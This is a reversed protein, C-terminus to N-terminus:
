RKVPIESVLISNPTPNPDFKTGSPPDMAGHVINEGSAPARLGFITLASVADPPLMIENVSGAAVPRGSFLATYGTGNSVEVTLFGASAPVIRLIGEPTVSYDFAFRVPAVAAQPSAVIRNAGLNGGIGGGGAGGRGGGGGGRGGRGAAAPVGGFAREPAVTVSDQTSQAGAQAQAAPPPPASETKLLSAEATITVAGQTAVPAAEAPPQTKKLAPAPVAPTPAVAPPVVPQAVAAAAPPPVPPAVAPAVIPPPVPAAPATVQAIELERPKEFLVIGAIAAMAFAGTAAWVWARGWWAKQRPALAALMRAKVGPEELLEKLAQEGALEDFLEQDDLAAEFLAKRETESLSGTAYAGILGRIEDRTM